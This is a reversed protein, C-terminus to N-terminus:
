IAQYRSPRTKTRASRRQTEGSASIPPLSTDEKMLDASLPLIFRRNRRITKGGSDRLISYSQGSDCIGQVTGHEDWEGSVMNQIAVRQNAVLPKLKPAPKTPEAPPPIETKPSLYPLTHRQRRGFFKESPSQKTGASPVNRWALLRAKFDLESDSKKLLRKATKVASEALGNSRHNYPSSTIFSIQNTKCYEQFEGRFQPGNDSMITKPYGFDHFWKTLLTTVTTTNTKKLKQSWIFNSYRDCMVLYDDGGHEFLDLSVSEMPYNAKPHTLIEEHQSPRLNLCLECNSILDKIDRNIGPWFYLQQALLRTKSIGSHSEHLKALIEKRLSKPIIIRTDEWILLCDDFISIDDWISSFQKGPHDPPLDKAQTGRLIADKIQQYSTDDEAADYLPQLAPDEAVSYALAANCTVIEKEKPAFVPARSLADAILHTKGPVWIVEFDYQTLRERFRQLRANPIDQLDKNFTGMLPRHDTIVTFKTGMLYFHCDTIAYLIALGELENTAYRTEASSLSRSGCQILRLTDDTNRQLLAYGLGGLRAADTLLETKLAPNFPKVLLESTLIKKATQFAEAQANLWLFSTDKKLLDRLPKTVQALEPIFFGLQNVLGLFSRVQSADTPAPFNSIAKVRNPDPKVGDKGIIYGAFNIEQGITLKKKSLTLNHRKCCDLAIKLKRLVKRKTPAQLLADDVIKLIDPVPSLIHDTKGCFYDSSNNMGMPARTFRYRGTPLLFTTLRKSEESLPVQYYGQLADMKIFWKSDPKIDKLIDRPSPFPHVPRDIFKNIQRYDVVLRVKGDPKAVFFGPSCWETTENTPVKEIVGSKIFWNLTKDAEAQFHLPIKRATTVQLPRYNPDKRRLSINMPDGAMPTVKTDEFVEPYEALLDDFDPDVDDKQETTQPISVSYTKCRPPFVRSPFKDSIIGMRLLDNYSILVDESLNDSVLANIKCTLGEHTVRLIVSGVCNLSSSNAASIPQIDNSSFAIGNKRLLKAKVISRSTGSDPMAKTDVKNEKRALTIYM